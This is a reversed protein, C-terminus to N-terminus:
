LMTETIINHAAADRKLAQWVSRHQENGFTDIQRLHPMKLLASLDEIRKSWYIGVYELSGLAELASLTRLKTLSTIKLYRLNPFREIGELSTLERNWGLTLSVIDRGCLVDALRGISEFGAASVGILGKMDKLTEEFAMKRDFTFAIMKLAPFVAAQLRFRAESRYCLTDGFLYEVHEFPAQSGVTITKNKWYKRDNRGHFGLARVNPGILDPTLSPAIQSPLRLSRIDVLQKIFTPIVEQADSKDSDIFISTVKKGRLTEAATEIPIWQSLGQPIKGKWGLVWHGQESIHADYEGTHDLIAAHTEGM